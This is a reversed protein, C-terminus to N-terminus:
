VFTQTALSKQPGTAIRSGNKRPDRRRAFEAFAGFMLMMMRRTTFTPDIAETLSM